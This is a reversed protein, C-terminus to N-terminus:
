QWEDIYRFASCTPQSTSHPAKAKTEAVYQSIAMQGYTYPKYYVISLKIVM